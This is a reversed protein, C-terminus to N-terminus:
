AHYFCIQDHYKKYFYKGISISMIILMRKKKKKSVSYSEMKANFKRSVISMKKEIKM